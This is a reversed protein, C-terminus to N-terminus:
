IRSLYYRSVTKPHELGKIRNSTCECSHQWISSARGLRRSLHSCRNLCRGSALPFTRRKSNNSPFCTQNRHAASTRWLEAQFRRKEPLRLGFRRASHTSTPACTSRLINLNNQVPSHQRASLDTM